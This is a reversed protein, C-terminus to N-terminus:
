DNGLTLTCFSICQRGMNLFEPYTEKSFTKTDTYSSVLVQLRACPHNTNDKNFAALNPWSKLQWVTCIRPLFSSYSKLKVETLSRRHHVLEIPFVLLFSSARASSNGKRIARQSTWSSVGFGFLDKQHGEHSSEPLRVSGGSSCLTPAPAKHCVCMGLCTQPNCFGNFVHQIHHLYVPRRRNTRILCGTVPDTM